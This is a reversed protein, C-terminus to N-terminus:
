EESVYKRIKQRMQSKLGRLRTEVEQDLEEEPSIDEAWDDYDDPEPEPGYLEELKESLFANVSQIEKRLEDKLKEPVFIGSSGDVYSEVSKEFDRVTAYRKKLLEDLGILAKKKDEQYLQIRLMRESYEHEAKMNKKTFLYGIVQAIVLSIIGLSWGLLFEAYEM